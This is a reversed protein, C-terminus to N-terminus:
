CMYTFQWHECQKHLTSARFSLPNCGCPTFLHYNNDDDRFGSKCDALWANYNHKLAEKTVNFGNAKFKSIINDFDNETLNIKCSPFNVDFEREICTIEKVIGQKVLETITPLDYQNYDKDGITLYTEKELDLKCDYRYQYLDIMKGNPLLFGRDPMKVLYVINEM